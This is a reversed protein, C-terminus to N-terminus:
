TRHSAKKRLITTGRETDVLESELEPFESLWREVVRIEDERKGDDLLVVVNDSLKEFLVPLAPYRSLKQLRKPPGDIILLDIPPLDPIKDTDYWQWNDEGFTITKLPAFIVEAMDQLGHKKLMNTTNTASEDFNELSFIRGKGCEKISYAAFLTSTGSGIELIVKPKQEFIHSIIHNAFDPTIAWGGLPPLPYRPKIMAFLSFLAEVQKYHNDQQRFDMQISRHNDMQIFVFVGMILSLFIVLVINGWLLWSVIHLCFIAGFAIGITKTDKPKLYM